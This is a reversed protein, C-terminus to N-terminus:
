GTVVSPIYIITFKYYKFVENERITITVTITM